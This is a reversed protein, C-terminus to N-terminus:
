GHSPAATTPRGIQLEQDLARKAPREIAGEEELQKKLARNNEEITKLISKEMKRMDVRSDGSIM